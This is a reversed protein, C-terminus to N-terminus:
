LREAEDLALDLLTLFATTYHEESYMPHARVNKALLAWSEVEPVEDLAFFELSGFHAQVVDSLLSAFDTGRLKLVKPFFFQYILDNEPRQVIEAHM